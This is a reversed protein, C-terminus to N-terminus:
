GGANAQKVCQASDQNAKNGDKVNKPQVGFDGPKPPDIEYGKQKMCKAVKLLNRYAKKQVPTLSKPDVAGGGGPNLENAGVTKEPASPAGSAGGGNASASSSPSSKADDKDDGGCASLGLSLALVAVPLISLKKM